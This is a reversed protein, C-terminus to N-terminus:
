HLVIRISLNHILHHLFTCQNVWENETVVKIDKSRPYGQIPVTFEPGIGPVSLLLHFHERAGCVCKYM